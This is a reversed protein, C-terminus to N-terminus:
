AASHSPAAAPKGFVLPGSAPSPTPRAPAFLGLAPAAAAAPVNNKVFGMSLQIQKVAENVYQSTEPFRVAVARVASIATSYMTVVGLLDEQYALSAASKDAAEARLRLEENASRSFNDNAALASLDSSNPQRHIMDLLNSSPM